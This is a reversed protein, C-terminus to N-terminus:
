SLHAFTSGVIRARRITTEANGNIQPRPTALQMPLGLLFFQPQVPTKNVHAHVLVGNISEHVEQPQKTRRGMTPDGPCLSGDPICADQCVAIQRLEPTPEVAVRYEPLTEVGIGDSRGRLCPHAFECQSQVPFHAVEDNEGLPYRVVIDEAAFQFRVRHRRENCRTHGRLRGLRQQMRERYLVFHQRPQRLDHRVLMFLRWGPRSHEDQEESGASDDFPNASCDGASLQLFLTRAFDRAETSFASGV